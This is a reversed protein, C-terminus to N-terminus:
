GVRRAFFDGMAMGSASVNRLQELTGEFDGQMERWWGLSPELMPRLKLNFLPVHKISFMHTDSDIEMLRDRAFRYADELTDAPYGLTQAYHMWLSSEYSLHRFDLFPMNLFAPDALSAPFSEAGRLDEPMSWLQAMDEARAIMLKDSFHFPMYAWSAQLLVGMKGPNKDGNGFLRELTRYVSGVLVADTRLRVVYRVGAKLMLQSGAKCSRTVYNRTDYGNPPPPEIQVLEDVWPRCAKVLEPDETTWTVLALHSAPYRMRHYALALLTFETIPGQMFLGLEASRIAPAKELRMGGRVAGQFAQLEEIVGADDGFDVARVTRYNGYTNRIANMIEPAYASFVVVLVDDHKEQLLAEPPRVPVGHLTTGQNEQRPCITYELSLGTHPFYDRFAQGAGWGILRIKTLDIDAYKMLVRSLGGRVIAM